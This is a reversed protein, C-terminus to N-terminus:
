IQRDFEEHHPQWNNLPAVRRRDAFSPVLALMISGIIIRSDTINM